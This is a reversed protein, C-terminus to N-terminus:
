RLSPSTFSTSKIKLFVKLFYESIDFTCWPSNDKLPQLLQLLLHPTPPAIGHLLSNQPKYFHKEARAAGRYYLSYYVTKAAERYCYLYISNVAEGYYGLEQLINSSVKM